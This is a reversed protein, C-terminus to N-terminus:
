KVLLIWKAIFPVKSSVCVILWSIILTLVITVSVSILSEQPLLSKILLLFPFHIAYIGFSYTSLSRVVPFEKLDKRKSICVFIFFSSLFLIFSNYWINSGVGHSYTFCTYAVTLGFFFVALLLCSLSSFKVKFGRGLLGGVIVYVGYCGGFFGLSVSSCIGHHLYYKCLPSITPIVMSTWIAVGLPILVTSPKFKALVLAVFPFTGYLGIMVPLFWLVGCQPSVVFTGSGLVAMMHSSSLVDNRHFLSVAGVIVITVISASILPLWNRKWFRFCKDDTYDRNLLLYGSIFFFIPVSLRGLNFLGILSIREGWGWQVYHQMNFSFINEVAHVVVVCFIAFCRAYDLFVIRNPSSNETTMSTLRCCKSHQLCTLFGRHYIKRDKLRTIASSLTISCIQM